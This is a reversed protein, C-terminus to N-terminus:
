SDKASLTAVDEIYSTDVHLVWIAVRYHEVDASKPDDDGVWGIFLIFVRYIIM